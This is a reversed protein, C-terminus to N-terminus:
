EKWVEWLKKIGIILVCAVIFLLVLSVGGALLIFVLRLLFYFVDAM